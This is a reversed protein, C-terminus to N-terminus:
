HLSVNIVCVLRVTEYLHPYCYVEVCDTRPQELGECGHVGPLWQMFHSQWFTQKLFDCFNISAGRQGNDSHLRVLARTNWHSFIEALINRFRKFPGGSCTLTNWCCVAWSKSIDHKVIVHHHWIQIDMSYVTVRYVCGELDNQTYLYLYHVKKVM